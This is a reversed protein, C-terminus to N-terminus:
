FNNYAFKFSRGLVGAIDGPLAMKGKKGKPFEEGKGGRGGRGVPQGSVKKSLCAILRAQFGTTKGGKEM